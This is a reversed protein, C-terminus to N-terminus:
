LEWENWSDVVYRGNGGALAEDYHVGGGGSVTVTKGLMAGYFDSGGSVTVVANPTNITGIFSSDGSYTCSTCSNLGLVTLDAAVSTGNVIGGGSVTFKGGVYIKLSAGPLIWLYSSGSMTFDGPVYLVAKGTIIATGGGSLTFKGATAYSGAGLVYAYNTGGVNGGSPTFFAGTSMETQHARGGSTWVLGVTVQRLANSYGESM